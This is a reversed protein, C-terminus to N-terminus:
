KRVGLKELAYKVYRDDIIADIDVKKPVQNIRAFFDQQDRVSDRLIAGNPDVYGWQMRDYLPKEKTRTYKVMIDVVEGRGKGNWADMMDRAGKIYAVMFENAVRPNRRAWDDNYFLVAMDWGPPRFVDPSRKWNYAIGKDEYLTSFPEVVTGLDIAKNAFAPAMDPWSMYVLEVDQLSMGEAELMKGMMYVLPSGPANVAIKRGKLDAVRRIKDKLDSRVMLTDISNGEVDRTRHAVVHVPFARAYANFLSPAIGGGVVQIDGNSLPAMAPAASVFPELKVEINRERFYGREIAIYVPADATIGLHGVKVTDAAAAPGSLLGAVALLLAIFSAPRPRRM